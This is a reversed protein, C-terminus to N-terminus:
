GIGEMPLACVQLLSTCTMDWLGSVLLGTCALSQTLLEQLGEPDGNPETTVAVIMGKLSSSDWCQSTIAGRKTDGQTPTNHAEHETAM